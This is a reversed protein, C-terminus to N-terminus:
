SDKNAHDSFYKQTYAAVKAAIEQKLDGNMLSAFKNEMYVKASLSDLLVEKGDLVDQNCPLDLQDALVQYLANNQYTTFINIDRLAGYYAGVYRQDMGNDFLEKLTDDREKVRSLFVESLFRTVVIRKANELELNFYKDVLTFKNESLNDLAYVVSRPIEFEQYESIWSGSGDLITMALRVRFQTLFNALELKHNDKIHKILARAEEVSGPDNKILKNLIDIISGLAADFQSKNSKRSSNTQTENPAETDSLSKSDDFIDEDNGFINANFV